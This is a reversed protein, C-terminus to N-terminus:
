VQSDLEGSQKSTAVHKSPHVSCIFFQIPTDIQFEIGSETLVRLMDLKRLFILDSSAMALAACRPVLWCYYDAMKRIQM